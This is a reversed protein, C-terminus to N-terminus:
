ARVRKEKLTNQFDKAIRECFREVLGASEEFYEDPLKM